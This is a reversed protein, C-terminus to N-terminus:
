AGLWSLTCQTRQVKVEYNSGLVLPYNITDHGAPVDFLVPYGYEKVNDHIMQYVNKGFPRTTDQIDTFGGCILGKLHALQGSRKLNQMMRDLGYIHEGIDEIFLIKGETNIQGKTGTLHALMCLNGGVLVGTTEGDINQINPTINLTYQIGNLVTQYVKMFDTQLNDTAFASTMPAHLTNIKFEEHIYSHLVTIDSFGIIWKPHAVFATFDLADIMRSLGYGGRGMLIADIDSRNLYHQLDIIRNEDTDSFYSNNTFCTKGLEVEYGWGQLVNKAQLAKETPLYGSPCVIAIKSGKSLFTPTIM